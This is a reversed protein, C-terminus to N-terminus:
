RTSTNNKTPDRTWLLIVPVAVAGLVGLIVYLLHFNNDYSTLVITGITIGVLIGINQFTANVSMVSSRFRPVQELILSDLGVLAFALPATMMIGAVFAYPLNSVFTFIIVSISSVFIGAAAIPKRGVRNLLKGGVAGGVIAATANVARFLGGMLSSASFTMRVFSVNWTTTISLFYALTLCVLCAIASKNLFVQHYAQSYLSKTEKELNPQVSPLILLGFALCTLSLPFSFWLLFARWGAIAEVYGSLTWRNPLCRVRRFYNPWNEM